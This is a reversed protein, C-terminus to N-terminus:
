AREEGIRKGTQFSYGIVFFLVGVSVLGMAYGVLSIDKKGAM